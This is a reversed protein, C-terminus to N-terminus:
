SGEGAQGPMDSAEMRYFVRTECGTLGGNAQASSREIMRKAAEGFDDTPEARLIRVNGIEGWTAVDYAIDAWGEISRSRYAEPFILRPERDWELAACPDTWEPDRPPPPPAPLLGAKRWYPYSCNRRLPGENFRSAKVADEAAADLPANGTGYLQRVNATEGSPMVDFGIMTWDRVGPTAPITDFEPFARMIPQTAQRCEDGARLWDYAGRPLRPTQNTMVYSALEVRDAKEAPRMLPRYTLSCGTRAAGSAFRSASLAPGATSNSVHSPSTRAISLPRGTPDIAFEFTVSAPPSGRGSWLTNYPRRGEVVGAVAGGECTAPGPMWSVLQQGPAENSESSAHPRLTVVPPVPTSVTGAAAVLSLLGIM